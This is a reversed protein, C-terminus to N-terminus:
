QEFQEKEEATYVLAADMETAYANPNELVIDTYETIRNYELYQLMPLANEGCFFGSELQLLFRFIKTNRQQQALFLATFGSNNKYGAECMLLQTAEINQQRVALMLATEGDDTRLGCLCQKCM